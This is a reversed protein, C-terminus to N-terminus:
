LNRRWAESQSAPTNLVLDVRQGSSTSQNVLKIGSQVASPTVLATEVGGVPVVSNALGAGNNPDLVLRLQTYHGAALPTQGLNHARWQLAPAVMQTRSVTIDTWGADSDPREKSRVKTVTVNVSDFGCAPTTLAGLTCRAVTVVVAAAVADLSLCPQLSAMLWATQGPQKGVNENKGFRLLQVSEVPFWL